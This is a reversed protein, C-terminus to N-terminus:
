KRKVKTHRYYREGDETRFKNNPPVRIQAYDTHRGIPMPGVRMKTRFRTSKGSVNDLQIIILFSM